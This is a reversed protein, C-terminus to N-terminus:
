ITGPYIISKNDEQSDVEEVKVSIILHYNYFGQHKDKSSLSGRLCSFVENPSNCSHIKVVQNFHPIWVKQLGKSKFPDKLGFLSQVEPLCEKLHLLAM